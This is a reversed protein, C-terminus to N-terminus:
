LRGVKGVVVPAAYPGVAKDRVYPERLGDLAALLRPPTEELPPARYRLNQSESIRLNQSRFARRKM